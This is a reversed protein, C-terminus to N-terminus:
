RNPTPTEPSSSPPPPPPPPTSPTSPTESSLSLQSQLPETTAPAADVIVEPIVDFLSSTYEPIRISAQVVDGEAQKQEMVPLATSLESSKGMTNDPQGCSM